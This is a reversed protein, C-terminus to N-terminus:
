IIIRNICSIIVISLDDYLGSQALHSLLFLLKTLKFNLLSGNDFNINVFRKQLQYSM